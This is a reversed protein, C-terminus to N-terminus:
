FKSKKWEFFNLSKWNTKDYIFQHWSKSVCAAKLRDRINLNSFIKLVIENPLDTINLCTNSITNKIKNQVMPSRIFSQQSQKNFKTTETSATSFTQAAVLSSSHERRKQFHSKIVINKMEVLENETFYKALLPQFEEEEQKMHPLFRETFQDLTKRFRVGFSIRESTTKNKNIHLYGIDVM